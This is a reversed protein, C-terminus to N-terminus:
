RRQGQLPDVQLGRLCACWRCAPLAAPRGPDPSLRKEEGSAAQLREVAVRAATGVQPRKVPLFYLDGPKKDARVFDMLAEDEDGSHFGLRATMLWVGAAALSVIVIASAAQALPRDLPLVSLALLRSLVITTAVPVLVVSIRWPFLLALTNSGSAVQALTLLMALVFPVALVVFLQTRWVLALALAVWLIQLKAGSDM